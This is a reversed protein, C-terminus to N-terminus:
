VYGVISKDVKIFPPISLFCDPQRFARVPGEDNRVTRGDDPSLHAAVMRRRWFPM